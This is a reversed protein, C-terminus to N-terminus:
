PIRVVRVGLRSAVDALQRDATVLAADLRKCTEVFLGDTWANAEDGPRRLVAEAVTQVLSWSPDAFELHDTAMAGTTTTGVERAGAEAHALLLAARRDENPTGFIERVQHKTTLLDADSPLISPDLLGDAWRNFANTDLLYRKTM